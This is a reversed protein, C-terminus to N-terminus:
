RKSVFGGRDCGEVVCKTHVMEVGYSSDDDGLGVNKFMKITM